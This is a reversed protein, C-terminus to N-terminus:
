GPMSSYHKGDGASKPVFVIKHDRFEVAFGDGEIGKAGNALVYRSDM